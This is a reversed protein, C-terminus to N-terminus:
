DDVRTIHAGLSNFKEIFKEYGREIHYIESIETTGEAALGALVLAAGARLDTAMVHCGRLKANGRVNAKNGATEIIAGMKGLQAVHMFRNEFVTEIVTSSGEVTTLYAMFPSQIDTPFGPYPLTKIDTAYQPGLDGRVILDDDGVEIRVGCERLKAIVPKLHDPVANCIHVAGRTIAAALMFTAAEIRDPIVTHKAGGLGEVGEIKITDTGAGKIKAGMKNLFNALDVIEPEEAANEIYTTGDALVAAMMINETAGVSPFDLYITEGILGQPGAVAEVFGAEDNKVIQAGLAEFGKLHLDIPRAGIACGGPMPIVARGKRALLPGMVLISARMKNVLEFDAETSLIDRTHISLVNEDIEEIQSGLSSLIERMLSVDRLDPVDRIVCEEESLLAAAMLPLVANKAGSIQVEGRLPGSQEVIYKAM